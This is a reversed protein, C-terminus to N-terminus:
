RTVGDPLTPLELGNREFWEAFSAAQDAYPIDLRTRDILLSQVVRGATPGHEAALEMAEGEGPKRGMEAEAAALVCAVVFQSRHLDLEEASPRWNEEDWAARIAAERAQIKQRVPAILHPAAYIGNSELHELRARLDLLEPDTAAVAEWGTPGETARARAAEAAAAEARAKVQAATVYRPFRSWADPTSDLLMLGTKGEGDPRDEPVLIWSEGRSVIEIGRRGYTVSDIERAKMGLVRAAATRSPDSLMEQELRVQRRRELEAASVLEDPREEPTPPKVGEFLTPDEPLVEQTEDEIEQPRGRFRM